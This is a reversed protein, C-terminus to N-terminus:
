QFEYATALPLALNRHGKGRVVAAIKSHRLLLETAFVDEGGGGGRGDGGGGGRGGKRKRRRRRV